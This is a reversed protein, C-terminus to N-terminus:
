KLRFMDGRWGYARQLRRGYRRAQLFPIKNTPHPEHFGISREVDLSSPRFDWGSGHLKEVGFGVSVMAHLFDTWPIEGPQDPSSPSHFLTKFVKYARNDVRFIPQQDVIPEAPAIEAPTDPTAAIGRTKPKLPKNSLSTHSFAGTIQKSPDHFISSLPKYMYEMEDDDKNGKEVETWPPTRQISRDESLLSAVKDHASKGSPRAKYLCDVAKWFADLNAEADRMAEMNKKNRRRHAPYTFKGDTPDAQRHLTSQEFNVKLIPLWGDFTTKYSNLLEGQNSEMEDEIKRAWPQYLHLQHLCEAVVSLSALRSAVWPSVIAKIDPESIILREIEDVVGHLGFLFLQKEDWLCGFMAMLRVSAPTGKSPDYMGQIMTTNPDQPDRSCFGRMPPSPFVGIKLQDILDKKAADLLYRLNQFAKMYPKPLDEAPKIENHYRGELKELESIQRHIEDFTAFGFYAQKVVGGLIRNWFLAKEPQKLTPHKQGRTDLLMEQRHQEYDRMVEAFYSPDERLQWLHDERADREASSLGRLRSFDLRAPVRYPAEMAVVVLPLTYASPKFLSEPEPQVPGDTLTNPEFDRLLQKCCSVLFQWIRQQMELAHLGDGPHMGIGHLMLDFADEDDDWSVLEGYTDPSNRDVFLMTYENLFAPMTAGSIKGLHAQELDSHVFVDPPNRGRASLLLLLPRPKMLDELNIYPWMFSEYSKSGPSQARVNSRMSRFAAVDPRHQTAMGPWATLLIRKKQERSKKTWRKRITEEHREIIAHVTTWDKFLDQAYRRAKTRVEKPSPMSSPMRRDGPMSRFMEMYDM